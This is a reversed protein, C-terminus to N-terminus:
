AAKIRKLYDIRLPHTELDYGPTFPQQKFIDLAITNDMTDAHPYFQAITGAPILLEDRPEILIRIFSDTEPDKIDVHWMGEIILIMIDYQVILDKSFMELTEKIGIDPGGPARFGDDKFSWLFEKALGDVFGFEEARKRHQHMYNSDTGGLTWFKWGLTRLREESVPRGSDHPLNLNDISTDRYYARM